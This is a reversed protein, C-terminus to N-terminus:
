LPPNVANIDGARLTEELADLNRGHWEPAGLAALLAEYFHDTSVWNEGDLTIKTM